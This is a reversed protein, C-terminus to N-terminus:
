VNIFVHTHKGGRVTDFFERPLVLCASSTDVKTEWSRSWNGYLEAGCATFHHVFVNHTVPSDRAQYQGWVM